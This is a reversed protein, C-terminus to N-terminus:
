ETQFNSFGPYLVEFVPNIANANQFVRYPVRHIENPFIATSALVATSVGDRLRVIVIENKAIDPRLVEVEPAVEVLEDVKKKRPARKKAPKKSPAATVPETLEPQVATAEPKVPTTKRRAM